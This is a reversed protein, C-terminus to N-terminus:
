LLIAGLTDATISTDGLYSALCTRLFLFKQRTSAPNTQIPGPKLCRCVLPIQQAALLREYNGNEDGPQQLCVHFMNQEVSDAILNFVTDANSDKEFQLPSLLLTAISVDFADEVIKRRKKCLSGCSVKHPHTVGMRDVFAHNADNFFPLSIILATAKCLLVSSTQHVRTSKIVAAIGGCSALRSRNHTNKRCLLSLADLCLLQLRLNYLTQLSHVGSGALISVISPVDDAEIARQLITETDACDSDGSSAESVILQREMDVIRRALVSEGTTGLMVAQVRANADDFQRLENCFFEIKRRALSRPRFAEDLLLWRTSEIANTM